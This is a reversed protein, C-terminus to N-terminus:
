AAVRRRKERETQQDRGPATAPQEPADGMACMSLVRGLILACVVALVFWGGLFWLVTERM